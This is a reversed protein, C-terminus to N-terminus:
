KSRGLNKRKPRKKNQKRANKEGKVPVTPSGSPNWRSKGRFNEGKAEHGFGKGGGGKSTHKEKRLVNNRKTVPHM